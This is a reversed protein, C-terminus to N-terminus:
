IRSKLITIENKIRTKDKEELPLEQLLSDYRVIKFGRELQVELRSIVRRRRQDKKIPM